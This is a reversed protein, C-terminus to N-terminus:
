RWWRWVLALLGPWARSDVAVSSWALFLMIGIWFPVAPWVLHMNLTV